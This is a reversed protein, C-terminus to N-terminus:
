ISSNIECHASEPHELIGGDVVGGNIAVEGVREPADILRDQTEDVVSM